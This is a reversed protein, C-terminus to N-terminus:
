GGFRFGLGAYAGATLMIYGQDYVNRMSFLFKMLHADYTLAFSLFLSDSIEINVGPEISVGVVLGSTFWDYSGFSVRVPLIIDVIGTQFRFVPGIGCSLSIHQRGLSNEERYEWDYGEGEPIISLSNYPFRLTLATSLGIRSDDIFYIDSSINLGINQRKIFEGGNPYDSDLSYGDPLPSSFANTDYSWELAARLDYTAASLASLVLLMVLSLVLKRM